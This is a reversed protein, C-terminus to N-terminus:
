VDEIHIEINKIKKVHHARLLFPIYNNCTCKSYNEINVTQEDCKQMISVVDFEVRYNIENPKIKQNCKCLKYKNLTFIKSVNTELGILHIINAGLSHSCCITKVPKFENCANKFTNLAHHYRYTYKLLGLIMAVDNFYDEIKHTGCVVFILIKKERSYYTQFDFSSYTDMREYDFQQAMKIQEDKSLYCVHLVDYLTIKLKTNIDM